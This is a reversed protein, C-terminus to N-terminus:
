LLSIVWYIVGVITAASIGCVLVPGAVSFLKAGVGLVPGEKKYEIAPAVMSNSFGTIPVIVGAGAFKAIVDFVGLGTLLQAAAVLTITVFAGADKESLGKGQLYKQFALAATCLAGGVLFAKLCNSFYKPKPTFEKAYKGYAKAIEKKQKEQEKNKEESIQTNPMKIGGSRKEEETNTYVSINQRKCDAYVFKAVVTGYGFKGCFKM